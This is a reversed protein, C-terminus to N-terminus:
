LLSVRRPAIFPGGALGPWHVLWCSTGLQSWMRWAPMFSADAWSLPLANIRCLGDGLNSRLTRAVSLTLSKDNSVLICLSSWDLVTKLCSLPFCCDDVNGVESLRQYQLEPWSAEDAKGSAVSRQCGQQNFAFGVDSLNSLFLYLSHYGRLGVAVMAWLMATWSKIAEVTESLSISVWLGCGCLSRLFRPILDLGGGKCGTDLGSVRDFVQLALDRPCGRITEFVTEDSSVMKIFLANSDALQTMGQRQYRGFRLM